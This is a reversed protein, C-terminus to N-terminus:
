DTKAFFNQVLDGTNVLGELEKPEQFFPRDPRQYKESIAGQQFPSNEEFNINIEPIIDTSGLGQSSGPM